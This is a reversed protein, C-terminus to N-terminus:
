TEEDESAKRGATLEIAGEDAPMSVGERVRRKHFSWHVSSYLNAGTGCHYQAYAWPNREGKAVLYFTLEGVVADMIPASAPNARDVVFEVGFAGNVPRGVRAVPLWANWGSDEASGYRLEFHDKVPDVKRERWAWQQSATM